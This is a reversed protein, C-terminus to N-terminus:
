HLSTLVRGQHKSLSRGASHQVLHMKYVAWLMREHESVPNLTLLNAVDQIESVENMEEDPLPPVDWHPLGSM